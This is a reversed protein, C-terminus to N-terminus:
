EGGDALGAPVDGDHSESGHHLAQGLRGKRRPANGQSGAQDHALGAASIQWSRFFILNHRSSAAASVQFTGASTGAFRMPPSYFPTLFLRNTNDKVYSM